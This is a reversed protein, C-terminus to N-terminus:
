GAWRAVSGLSWPCSRATDCPRAGVAASPAMRPGACISTCRFTNKKPPRGPFIRVRFRRLKNHPKCNNNFFFFVGCVCVCAWFLFLWEQSASPRSAHARLLALVPLIAIFCIALQLVNDQMHQGEIYSHHKTDYINSAAVKLQDSFQHHKGRKDTM